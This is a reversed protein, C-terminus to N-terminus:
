GCSHLAPYWCLNMKNCMLRQKTAEKTRGNQKPQQLKKPFFDHNKELTKEEKCRGRATM